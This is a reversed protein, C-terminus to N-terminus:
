VPAGITGRSLTLIVLAAGAIALLVRFAFWSRAIAPASEPTQPRAPVLAFSRKPSTALPRATSEQDPSQTAPRTMVKRRPGHLTKASAGPFSLVLEHSIRSNCHFM